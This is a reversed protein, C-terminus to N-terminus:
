CGVTPVRFFRHGRRDAAAIYHLKTLLRDAYQPAGSAPLYRECGRVSENHAATLTVGETELLSADEAFPFSFNAEDSREPNSRNEIAQTGFRACRLPV